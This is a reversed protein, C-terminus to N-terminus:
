DNVSSENPGMNIVDRDEQMDEEEQVPVGEDYSDTERFDDNDMAEERQIGRADNDSNRNCAVSFSLLSILSLLVLLAKMSVEL